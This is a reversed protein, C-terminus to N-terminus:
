GGSSHVATGGATRLSGEVARPALAFRPDPSAAGTVLDALHAGVVPGHKFAHGSGGGVIWAGDRDPHPAIVFATDPTLTYQCTRSGLLPASALEPFRHALYARAREENERSLVREGTDPDFDPGVVDPACKVGRGDLDGLGYAAGDYDVWGPTPPTAWDPGAGFFTVDQKTIRLALPAVVEGLVAPLWPGCAWVAGHADITAGDVVVEGSPGATARGTVVRVGEDCAAAVVAQVAVRAHLVGADPEHLVFALDDTRLSPFLGEADRCELREARVGAETMTALSSAEWGDARRAFWAVGSRALLPRGAEAELATWDALARHAMRTFTADEGHACRILRSEGGSSARVHGPTQQEVLVVTLGRRALSLASWAGLVGAGVVVVDAAGV